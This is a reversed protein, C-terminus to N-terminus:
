IGNSPKNIVKSESFKVKAPLPLSILFKNWFRKTEWDTFSVRCNVSGRLGHCPIAYANYIKMNEALSLAKFASFLDSSGVCAKKIENRCCDTVVSLIQQFEEAFQPSLLDFYSNNKTIDRFTRKVAEIFHRQCMVSGGWNVLDM